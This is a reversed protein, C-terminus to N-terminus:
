IGLAHSVAQAVQEAKGGYAALSQCEAKAAEMIERKHQPVIEGGAILRASRVLRYERGETAIAEAESLYDSPSIDPAGQWIDAV